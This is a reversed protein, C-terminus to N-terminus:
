LELDSRKREQAFPIAGYLSSRKDAKQYNQMTEVKDTKEIDGNDVFSEIVKIKDGELEAANILYDSAKEADKIAKVLYEPNDKISTQWSSMYAKHNEYHEESMPAHIYESMFCSTMEAVLEEYAYADTGSINEINRSLREKSGTAHGLEHLATANYDYSSDFANPRPMHIEDYHISYYAMDSDNIIPVNISTSIKEILEDPEIINDKREIAPIGEICSANFVTYYRPRFDILLKDDKSLKRYEDWTITRKNGEEDRQIPIWYEIRVGKSGAKLRWENGQIQKFTAWRNDSYGKEFAAISLVINNIGRYKKNTTANIPQKGGIWPQKWERPNEKILKLFDNEIKQRFSNVKKKNDEKAEPAKIEIEM